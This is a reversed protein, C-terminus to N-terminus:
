RVPRVTRSITTSTFRSWAALALSGMTMETLVPVAERLAPLVAQATAVAGVVGVGLDHAIAEPTLASPADPRFGVANFHIRRTALDIRWVSIGALVLARDLFETARRAQALRLAEDVTAAQLWVLMGDALAVAM